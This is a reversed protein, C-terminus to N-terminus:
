KEGAEAQEMYRAFQGIMEDVEFGEGRLETRWAREWELSYYGDYGTSQILEVIEKIPVAGEGIRTYRWSSRDQDEWPEGDKIHVHVLDNKVYELTELPQEGAELPHMIDWLLRIHKFDHQNLLERLVKGKAFEDHTEIWIETGYQELIQDAEILWKVAGAYDVEPVKESKLKRKFGMMIRLGRCHLINAICSCRKLEELGGEDYRNIRISTGLDSVKLSNKCLYEHMEEYAQDPLSLDSWPHFNMRVELAEIGHRRCTKVADELTWDQFALTSAALKYKMM